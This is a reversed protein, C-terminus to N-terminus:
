REVTRKRMTLYPFLAATLTVVALATATMRIIAIVEDFATVQQGLSAKQCKWWRYRCQRRSVKWCGQQSKERGCKEIARTCAM